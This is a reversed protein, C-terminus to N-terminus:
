FLHRRNGYVRKNGERTIFSRERGMLVDLTSPLHVAGALPANKRLFAEEKKKTQDM